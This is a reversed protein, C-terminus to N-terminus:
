SADRVELVNDLVMGVGKPGSYETSRIGFTGPETFVWLVQNKHGPVVQMQFVMTDDARFVGFGYTLDETTM